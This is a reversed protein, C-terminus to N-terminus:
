WWSIPGGLEQQEITSKPAAWFSTLEENSFIHLSGPLHRSSLIYPCGSAWLGEQGPLIWFLIFHPFTQKLIVLFKLM